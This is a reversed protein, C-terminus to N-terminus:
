QDTFKDHVRAMWTDLLTKEVEAFSPIWGRIIGEPDIELKEAKSEDQTRSLHYVSVDKAQISRRAEEQLAMVLYQSHTTVIVQRGSQVADSFMRVLQVQAAPHLSIEPEEVIVTSGEPSAFLQVIVPLIQQSGFGSSRLPLPVSTLHDAYGSDLEKGGAWGSSVELLGFVNSWERIKEAANRHEPKAFVASLVQLTHEANRGVHPIRIKEDLDTSPSGRNPGLLFVKTALFKQIELMGERATSIRALASDNTPDGASLNQTTFISPNFINTQTQSAPIFDMRLRSAPIERIELEARQGRAQSHTILNRVLVDGNALFEYTYRNSAPQFSIRYGITQHEGLQDTLTPPTQMEVTVQLSATRVANHLAFEGTPGLNILDGTWALGSYNQQARATQVLLAVVDIASTKGSNNQGLLLNLGSLSLQLGPNQGFAKFNKAAIKSLM